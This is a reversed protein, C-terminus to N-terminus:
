RPLKKELEELRKELKELRDMPPQGKGGPKPGSESPFSRFDPFGFSPPTMGAAREQLGAQLKLEEIQRNAQAEFLKKQAELQEVQRRAQQKVQEVQRQAEESIQKVQERALEETQKQQLDFIDLQVKVQTRMSQLLAAASSERPSPFGPGQQVPTLPNEAAGQPPAFSQSSAPGTLLLASLGFFAILFRARM